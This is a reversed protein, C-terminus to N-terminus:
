PEIVFWVDNVGQGTADGPEVDSAWFYLPSDNYTVQITGDDRETTGLEGPIGDALAPTEGAAVLLPPWAAACGEYCNSMGAEDQTFLYLTMGNAAVLFEGLEENGGLMVAPAAAASEAMAQPEIVFWVDNVGQGTADGPEVDSAWFYLPSDNYTVQITGDDRETTGLEGPIGDALAPTEGAAVLLPPWAAACGEYCNSMGAEDQTFLYLTMGNAAVLFEGLEDNGGLGVTSLMLKFAPTVVNGEADTAPVDEGPFEYEGATGADVHLMAYLTATAMAPDIEVMVDSNEGAQVPAHGVVPGPNGDAEAHIVLWGATDSSVSAITVSNGEGLAQDSVSVANTVATAAAIAETLAPDVVFWVDNVGQGTADGPEVDSAWYYLPFGNYTVQRTGDERETIELEGLIGEGPVLAEGDEVLLPPWAAACGDYCNSKGAEDMTFLYLTMGNPGVLFSGLQENGGLMTIPKTLGFAPTVVNGDAGTAPVDAGPFEYEGVTGADVHLMAYLTATAAAPDIEVSIDSNEGARVPSYGVIPGPNGDADAHIVLWGATDSTVSAITVSNGTGLMQDAVTVANTVTLEESTDVVPAAPAEPTPEAAQGGCAVLVFWAMLLVIAYLAKRNM